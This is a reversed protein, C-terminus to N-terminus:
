AHARIRTETWTQREWVALTFVFMPFRTAAAKPKDMARSRRWAGKIEVLELLTTDPREVLFDPCYHSAHGLRLSLPEYLWRTIEGCAQRRTLLDAYRAETKSRYPHAPTRQLDAGQLAGRTAYTSERAPTENGATQRIAPAGVMGLDPNARLRAQLEEPSMTLGRRM